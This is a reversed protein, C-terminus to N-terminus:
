RMRTIASRGTFKLSSAIGTEFKANVVVRVSRGRPLVLAAAIEKARTGLVVIVERLRSRCAEDVVAQLLMRGNWPLLQKAEGMRTAAGAALVVGSVFPQATATM